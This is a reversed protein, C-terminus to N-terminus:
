NAEPNFVALGKSTAAACLKLDACVFVDVSTAVASALHLADYARLGEDTTFDCAMNIVQTDVALSYIEDELERLNAMSRTFEEGTIRKMQRARSLASVTELLVIQSSCVIKSEDWYARVNDSGQENIFLKVFASTDFYSNM